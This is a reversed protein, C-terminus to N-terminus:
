PDTLTSLQIFRDDSNKALEKPTTGSFKSVERIFHPQDYFHHSPGRGKNLEDFSARFRLIRCYAKLPIGFYAHFYRNIQRSKWAIRESLDNINVNGHSDYIQKFLTLNRAPVKEELRNMIFLSACHTFDEISSTSLCDFWESDFPLYEFTDLINAISRRLIHEASPLKFSISYTRSHAPMTFVAQKTALGFLMCRFPDGNASSFLVDFYGDPLITVVKDVTHPNELTWFSSVFDTLKSDPARRAYTLDNTGSM